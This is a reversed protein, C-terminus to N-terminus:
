ESNASQIVWATPITGLSATGAVAAGNMFWMVRAGSSNTWVIDSKGNGDFDGTLDVSWTTPVIGLSASSAVTGGSNFFWIATAGSTSHRWLLDQAGNGDFDGTGVLAWVSPLAGLTTSQSVAVGNMTWRVLTGTNSDRWLIWNGPGVAIISWNNPVIGVSASQTVTNGNMLWITVAGTTSNRWVIDAKGDGNFDGLGAIVYTTPLTAVTLAQTVSLGNMLWLSVAGTNSDRWLLDSKGDGDFDRQGVIQWNNPVTAITASSTIVGGNMLRGVTAGNSSNRFLIDSKGDGNFDHTATLSPSSSTLDLTSVSYPPMSYSLQTPNNLVMTGAAVPLASASTLQYIAAQNFTPAHNLSIVATIANATKNIAILVMRSPDTSDLSAYISTDPVNSTGADVSTDGFSGNHGDFNRYMMFAGSVFAENDYLPWQSAAFVGDRGFIGLVDAQAIGGSIDQGAGYNYETFALQTGPYNSAIEGKLLPLLNLPGGIWDETIWSHEQYTSDWLSRPAQLRAAVVTPTTEQGDIRINDSSQAEPYWHLDLVDLLRKGNAASAQQMQSLYFQLFDRGNADIAGQLRVYGYWGYSVPGFILTNSAVAKIGAAYAVSKSIMEAYTAPIPHVEAHTDKWLDPENDLCFWIPSAIGAQQSYPFMAKVWNVFEDQYVLPTLPDPTLTFPSGKVASEQHFRTTLYNPGSNRVDGGGNKDASVYGNIPVTLVLAASNEKANNISDLLAGGPTNGGGLYDDNQYYWDSGANSANNVWNYATWRNGGVRRFSLNMQPNLPDHLPANIGYIYRSIPKVNKTADVTITVTEAAHGPSALLFLFLVASCM